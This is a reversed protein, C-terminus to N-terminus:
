VCGYRMHRWSFANGMSSAAGCLDFSRSGLLRQLWRRAMILLLNVCLFSVLATELNLVLFILAISCGSTAATKSMIRAMGYRRKGCGFVGEVPQRAAEDAFKSKREASSEQIQAPGEQRCGPFDYGASRVGADIQERGTFGIPASRRRGVDVSPAIPSLRIGCIKRRM